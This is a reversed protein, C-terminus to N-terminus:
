AAQDNANESPAAEVDAVPPLNVDDDRLEVCVFLGDGIVTIQNIAKVPYKGNPMPPNSTDVTLGSLYQPLQVYHQNGLRSDYLEIKM